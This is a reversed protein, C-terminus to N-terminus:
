SVVSLIVAVVAVWAVVLVALLYGTIRVLRSKIGRAVGCGLLAGPIVILALLLGNVGESWGHNVSIVFLIVCLAAWAVWICAMTRHMRSNSKQIVGVVFILGVVAIALLLLVATAGLAVDRLGHDM